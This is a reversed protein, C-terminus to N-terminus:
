RSNIENNYQICRQLLEKFGKFVNSICLFTGDNIAKAEGESGKIAKGRRFSSELQYCAVEGEGQM